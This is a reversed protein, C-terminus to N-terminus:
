IHTWVDRRVIYRILTKSVSFKLALARASEGSAARRRIDIVQNEHLRANGNTSGRRGGGDCRGRGKNWCDRLNDSRTGVFLHAPNVCPPNDCRHCVHLGPPIPGVHLEYSVRSAVLLRGKDGGISIQGYGHSHQAGTWLWCDDPGAKVVKAWFRDALPIRKTRGNVTPDGHKKIRRWHKQCYGHGYRPKGCGDLICLNPM